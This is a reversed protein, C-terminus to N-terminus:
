QNAAVRTFCGLAAPSGGLGVASSNLFVPASVAGRCILARERHDLERVEASSVDRTPHKKTTPGNQAPSSTRCCGQGRGVRHWSCRGCQSLWAHSWVNGFTGSPCFHGWNFVVAISLCICGSFAARGPERAGVPSSFWSSPLPPVFTVGLVDQDWSKRYCSFGLTVPGETSTQTSRPIKQTPFLFSVRDGRDPVSLNCEGATVLCKLSGGRTRLKLCFHARKGIVFCRSEPTASM